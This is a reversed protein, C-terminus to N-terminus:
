RRRLLHVVEAELMKGYGLQTIETTETNKAIALWHNHGNVADARTVYREVPHTGGEDLIATEYGEDSTFATSVILGEVEDRAVKREDYNPADSQMAAFARLIDHYM